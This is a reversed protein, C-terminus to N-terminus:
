TIIKSRRKCYLVILLIILLTGLMDLFVDIVSAERGPLSAQHIEDAVAIAFSILMAGLLRLIFHNPPFTTPKESQSFRLATPVFSLFLLITLIGYLPLHLLSYPNFPSLSYVMSSDALLFICAIYGSTIFIYLVRM